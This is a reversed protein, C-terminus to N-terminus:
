LEDDNASILEWSRKSLDDLKLNLESYLLDRDSKDIGYFEAM